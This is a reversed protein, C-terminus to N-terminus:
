RICGRRRLPGATLELFLVGGRLFQPASCRSRVSRRGSGPVRSAYALAMADGCVADMVPLRDRLAAADLSRRWRHLSASALEDVPGMHLCAWAVGACVAARCRGDAVHTAGHSGLGTGRQARSATFDVGCVIGGTFGSFCRGPVADRRTRDRSEAM